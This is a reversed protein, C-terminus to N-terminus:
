CFTEEIAIDFEDYNTDGCRENIIEQAKKIADERSEAEIVEAWEINSTICIDYKKM